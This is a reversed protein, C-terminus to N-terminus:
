LSVILWSGKKMRTHFKWSIQFVFPDTCHIGVQLYLNSTFFLEKAVPIFNFNWLIMKHPFVRTIQVGVQGHWKCISDSIDLLPMKWLIPFCLPGIMKTEGLVMLRPSGFSVYTNVWPSIFHEFNFGNAISQFKLCLNSTVITKVSQISQSQWRIVQTDMPLVFRMESSWIWM